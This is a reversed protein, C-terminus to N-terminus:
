PWAYVSYVGVGALSAHDIALGSLCAVISYARGEGGGLDAGEFM